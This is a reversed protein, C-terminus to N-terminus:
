RLPNRLIKKILAAQGSHYAHHQVLGHLLGYFTTSAEGKIDSEVPENLRAPPFSSLAEILDDHSKLLNAVTAKWAKEDRPSLTPWDGELPEGPKGGRLRNEVEHTWAIVHLVIEWISHVEPIPKEIAESVKIDELIELTSPGHWAPGKLSRNLEDIIRSIEQM